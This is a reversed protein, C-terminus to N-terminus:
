SGSDAAKKKINVKFKTRVGEGTEGASVDVADIFKGPIIYGKGKFNVIVGDSDGGSQKGDIRLNLESTNDIQKKTENNIKLIQLFGNLMILSAIAFILVACVVEILTMGKSDMRKINIGGKM